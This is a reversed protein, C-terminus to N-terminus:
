RWLCGFIVRVQPVTMIEIKLLISFKWGAFWEFIKWGIAKTSPDLALNLKIQKNQVVMCSKNTLWVAGALIATCLVDLGFLIVKNERFSECHFKKYYLKKFKIGPETKTKLAGWVRLNVVWFREKTEFSKLNRTNTLVQWTKFLFRAFKQHSLDSFILWVNDFSSLLASNSTCQPWLTKSLLRMLFQCQM